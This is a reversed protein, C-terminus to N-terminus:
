RPTLHTSILHRLRTREHFVVGPREFVVLEARPLLSALERATQAPHLPDGEQGLVLVEATVASLVSRDPVPPDDALATLLAPLGPSALLYAARAAVYPEADVDPPLEARVQARLADLDESALAEILGASRRVAHDDRAADLTAPLFLVVRHFRDPTISLLRLITHAGLSVGLSQTAQHLDAAVRLDAALEGYGPVVPAPADGHGRAQLFVKTGPVGSLLPRTEAISAGLGHAVVTVPPGAGSIM